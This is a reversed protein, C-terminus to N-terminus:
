EHDFGGTTLIPLDLAKFITGCSLGEAPSYLGEFAQKPTYVMALSPMPVPLAGNQPTCPTGNQIPSGGCLPPTQNPNMADEKRTEVKLM